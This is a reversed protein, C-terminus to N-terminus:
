FLAFLLSILVVKVAWLVVGTVVILLVTVAALLTLARVRRATTADRWTKHWLERWARPRPEAPTPENM